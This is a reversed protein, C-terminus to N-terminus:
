KSAEQPQQVAVLKDNIFLHVTADVPRRYEEPFNKVSGDTYNGSWVVDGDVEARYQVKKSPMRSTGKQQTPPPTVTGHAEVVADGLGMVDAM